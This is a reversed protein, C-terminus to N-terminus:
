SRGACRIRLIERVRNSIPLYRRGSRTKSDPTFITGADFDINEVKMRYLERANRQGTDRMVIIVDALPQEAVPLLKREAEDNLRLSRGWVKFLRFEPAKGILKDEVAMSFMRSLTKLANNGNSPSGPFKLKEIQRKSIKDMRKGVIKLKELLRWGNRYYRRSDDEIRGTDVWELFDKSYERLTPPKGKLPDGDKVVAAYKLAAIGGARTRNTEKTSGRFREGRVTFDHWFYKSNPKRFLKM